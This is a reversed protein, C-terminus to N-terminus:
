QVLFNFWKREFDAVIQIYDIKRNLDIKVGKFGDEIKKMRDSKGLDEFDSNEENKANNRNFVDMAAFMEIREYEDENMKMARLESKVSKQRQENQEKSFDRVTKEVTRLLTLTRVFCFAILQLRFDNSYPLKKAADGNLRRYALGIRLWYEPNFPHHQLILCLHYIEM